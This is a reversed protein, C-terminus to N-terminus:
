LKVNIRINTDSLFELVKNKENVNKLEYTILPRVRCFVRINGKMEILENHLSKRIGTETELRKNIITYQSHLYENKKM